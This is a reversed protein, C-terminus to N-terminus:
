SNPLESLIYAIGLALGIWVLNVRSFGVAYDPTIAYEIKLALFCGAVTLLPMVLAGRWTKNAGFWHRQIPIKLGPLLDARVVAMHLVGSFILPVFLILSKVLIVNM